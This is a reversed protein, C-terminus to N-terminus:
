AAEVIFNAVALGHNQFDIRTKTATETLIENRKESVQSSSLPGSDVTNIGVNFVFGAVLKTIPVECFVRRLPTKNERCHLTHNSIWGTWATWVAPM